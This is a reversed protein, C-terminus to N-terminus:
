FGIIALEIEKDQRNSICLLLIFIKILDEYTELGRKHMSYSTNSMIIPVLINDHLLLLM